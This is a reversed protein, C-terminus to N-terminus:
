LFLLSRVRCYLPATVFFQARLQQFRSSLFFFSAGRVRMCPQSCSLFFRCCPARASCFHGFFCRRACLLPSTVPCFFSEPHVGSSVPSWLFFDTRANVSSCLPYQMAGQCKCAFQSWVARLYFTRASQCSPPSAVPCFFIARV